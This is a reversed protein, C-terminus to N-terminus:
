QQQNKIEDLAKNALQQYFSPQNMMVHIAVQGDLKAGEKKAEDQLYKLPNAINELAQVAIELQSHHYQQISEDMATLAQSVNSAWEWRRELCHNFYTDSCVWPVFHKKLININTEAIKQNIATEKSEAKETSMTEAKNSM